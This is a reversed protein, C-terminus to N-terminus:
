KGNFYRTYIANIKRMISALAETETKIILHVHNDMLCYCIIKYGFHSYYHLAGEIITIYFLFDEDDRFIDNRHNGRVTVHYSAGEYWERKPTAM